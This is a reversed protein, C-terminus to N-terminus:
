LMSALHLPKLLITEFKSSVHGIRPLKPYVPCQEPGFQKESLINALKEYM